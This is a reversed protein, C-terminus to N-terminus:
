KRKVAKALLARIWASVTQGEARAAKEIQRKLKAPIRFHITENSM